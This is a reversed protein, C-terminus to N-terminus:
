IFSSETVLCIDSSSVGAKKLEENHCFEKNYVEKVKELQKEYQGKEEKSLRGWNEQLLTKSLRKTRGDQKSYQCFLDFAVCSFLHITSRDEPPEALHTLDKRKGLNAFVALYQDRELKMTCSVRKKIPLSSSKIQIPSIRITLIVYCFFSPINDFIFAAIQLCVLRVNVNEVTQQKSEVVEEGDTCRSWSNWIGSRSRPHIM